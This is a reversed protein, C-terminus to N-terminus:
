NNDNDINSYVTLILLNTHVIIILIKLIISWLTPILYWPSVNKQWYCIKRLCRRKEGESLMNRHFFWIRWIEPRFVSSFASLIVEFLLNEVWKTCIGYLRCGAKLLLRYPHKESTRRSINPNQKEITHQM